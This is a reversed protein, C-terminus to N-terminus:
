HCARRLGRKSNALAALPDFGQKPRHVPSPDLVGHDASQCKQLLPRSVVRNPGGVIEVATRSHDGRAIRVVRDGKRNLVVPQRVTPFGSCLELPQM